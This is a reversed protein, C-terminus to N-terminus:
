ANRDVKWNWFGLLKMGGLAAPRTIALSCRAIARSRKPQTPTSLIRQAVPDKVMGYRALATCQAKRFPGTTM